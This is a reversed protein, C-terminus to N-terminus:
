INLVIQYQVTLRGVYFDMNEPFYLDHNQMYDPEQDTQM